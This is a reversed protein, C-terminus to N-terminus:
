LPLLDKNQSRKNKDAVFMILEIVRMPEMKYKIQNEIQNHLLRYDKHEIIKNIGDLYKLYTNTNDIGYSFKEDTLHRFIRSDWIAYVKPNIFHLLKSLGVLSNNVCEKLIKLDDSNLLKGSKVSNLLILVKDIDKFNLHIITPMWGYVFHTSIILHHKEIKDINKFYQIFEQYTEIYSDNSSLNFNETDREITEYNLNKLEM